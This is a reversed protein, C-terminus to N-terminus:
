KPYRQRHCFFKGILYTTYMHVCMYIGKICRDIWRLTRYMAEEIRPGTITTKVVDDLAMIIDAGIRNQSLQYHSVVFQLLNLSWM